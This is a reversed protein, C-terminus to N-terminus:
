IISLFLLFEDIIVDVNVDLYEIGDIDPDYDVFTFTSNILTSLKRLIRNDKKDLENVYRFKNMIINHYVSSSEIKELFKSNKIMNDKFKGRVKATCFQPMIVMGRLQLFKKMYVILRITDTRNLTYIAHSNDFFRSYFAHLLFQTISNIDCNAYYFALEEDDLEVNFREAIDALVKTTNVDNIMSNSEDIRYVMMELAEAHSLYDDSDSSSDESSIEFPKAKYNESKFNRNYSFIIGDIFSVCSMNYRLKYLSKVIIVEHILEELYIEKVTGYLQKKQNWIGKDANYARYVRYKVFRCLATFITVDNAEFRKIIEMYISNFCTIYDRKEVFSENVNSFHIFLPLTLRFAFSCAVLQRAQDNTIKPTNKYKGEKDTNINITYLRHAMLKVKSIFDPTILRDLVVTKFAEQTFQPKQDVIFKISLMAMFLEKEKDYFTEFYNLHKLVTSMENKYHNKNIFYISLVSGEHLHLMEEYKARVVENEYVYYEQDPTPNWSELDPLGETADLLNSIDM